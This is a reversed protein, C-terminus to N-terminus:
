QYKICKAPSLGNACEASSMLVNAIASSLHESLFAGGSGLVLGLLLGLSLLEAWGIGVPATPLIAHDVIEVQGVTVAEAIRAREYEIRLEDAIKRAIEARETLRAEEAETASLQRLSGTLRARLDDLAAIRSDLSVLSSQVGAQVARLLKGETSAILLTLRPLDPHSGSRSALSAENAASQPTVGTSAKDPRWFRCRKFRPPLRSAFRARHTTTGTRM